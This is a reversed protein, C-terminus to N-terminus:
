PGSPWFSYRARGMGRVGTALATSDRRRAEVRADSERLRLRIEPADQQVGAGDRAQRRAERTRTGKMMSLEGM